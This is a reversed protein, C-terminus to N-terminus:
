EGLGTKNRKLLRHNRESEAAILVTEDASWPGAILLSEDDRGGRPLELLFRVQGDVVVAVSQGAYEATAQMWLHRGHTDLYARVAPTGDAASTAEVRPFQASTLLPFASVRVGSGDAGTLVRSLRGADVAPDALRYLSLTSVPVNTRTSQCGFALV